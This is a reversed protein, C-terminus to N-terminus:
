SDAEGIEHLIKNFKSTLEDPLADLEEAATTLLQLVEQRIKARKEAQQQIIIAAQQASSSSQQHSNPYSNPNPHPNNNNNNNNSDATATATATTSNCIQRQTQEHQELSHIRQTSAWQVANPSCLEEAARRIKAFPGNDVVSSSAAVAVQDKWTPDYVDQKKKEKRDERFKMSLVTVCTFIVNAWIIVPLLVPQQQQHQQQLLMAATDDETTTNVSSGDVDTNDNNYNITPTYYYNTHLL